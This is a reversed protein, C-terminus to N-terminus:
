FKYRLSLKGVLNLYENGPAFFNNPDVQIILWQYNYSRVVGFQGSLFLNKFNWDVKLNTSLDIWHRRFDQNYEFAYYYFDSQHRLREFQLGIRKFGKLWSIEFSQSNSGPGIGAGISRGQHTYGQTVYNHSYWSDPNQILEGTQAQMQTLETAFLINAKNKTPFLKRFGVVYARRFANTNFFDFPSLAQDKRGFEMYVEANSKPLLYRAFLSGMSAKQNNKETNTLAKGFFGQLPLYDIPNSLDEKYLYSAKAFGIFLNPTWKPNWTLVMGTMYRNLNRKPQYVYNGNYASYIRPPEFGSNTLEGGIMQGEFSGIKTKIPQNTQVTWHLFGPANTSMILANKVGPGWWLNETSIGFSFNKTQYKIFSQGPNLQNYKGTGYQEPLDITNWFQYRDAWARSGLQQSFGEYDTNTASVLEPAIQIHIRNALVVNVGISAMMQYGRAPLLNGANLFYPLKSTTQQILSIPILRVNAFGGLQKKFGTKKAVSDLINLSIQNPNLTLSSGSVNSDLLSQNRMLEKIRDDSISQASVANGMYMLGIIFCCIKGM